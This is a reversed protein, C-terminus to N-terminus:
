YYRCEEYTAAAKDRQPSKIEGLYEQYSQLAKTYEEKTAAGVSYLQQIKELSDDHGSRVAIKFHKLAREWNGEKAATIALNCRADADGNMAALELYHKSKKKDVEVGEGNYYGYGINNYALSYGLKGARHWLEFAKKYDQPFGNTGDRYDIGRNHIAIPDEKEMRKNIREVHEKQTDPRPTRCFACKENDVENGQNDYVPADFCGSCLRKGCCSQYRRGSNLTPLLLFCIPCDDLPPPQKFLEEDHLEAVRKKCEKKHQPRHAQQCDRSCYKVLKCAACSKLNSGEQGCNACLSLIIDEKDDTNDDATNMNTLKGIVECTGDDSSKSAGDKCSESANM